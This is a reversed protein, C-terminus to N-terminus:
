ATLLNYNRNIGGQGCVILTRWKGAAVVSLLDEIDEFVTDPDAFVKSDFAKEAKKLNGEFTNTEKQGLFIELQETLGKEEAADRMKKISGSKSKQIGNAELWEIREERTKGEFLFQNTSDIIDEAENINGTKLADSIQALVQIVNLDPSFRVTRTPRQFDANANNWYDISTLIFQAKKALKADWNFRLMVGKNNLFRYGKGEGSKRKYEEMGLSVFLGGMQKGMIKSYLMVVKQLKTESFALENVAVFDMFSKTKM